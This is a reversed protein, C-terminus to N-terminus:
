ATNLNFHTDAYDTPDFVGEMRFAVKRMACPGCTGCHQAGDLYCSWTLDFPMRMSHGMRVIEHKVMKGLPDSFSVQHYPKVAYPALERFKNIFEMENDPYAGSEEMNSGLAITGFGHREAIALALSLMVTNRAPVWEHAFEAGSVGGRSQNVKGNPNTLVSDAAKQFFDTEIHMVPAHMRAALRNVSRIEAGQAKCGYQLHLLTVDDGKTHHYWAVVGSDLGGSCVVLTKRNRELPYLTSRDFNGRYDLAGYEYPGLTIPSPDELPNYMGDFYKRQSGFLYSGNHALLYLPKYNTAWYMMRPNERDLALIAFSGKLEELARPWGWNDLAVSIAYSDIQTRPVDQDLGSLLEKDNAITGNHTVAWRGSPSIFPQHDLEGRQPIWETTPEGRLNGVLATHGHHENHYEQQREWQGQEDLLILQQDDRGREKSRHYLTTFNPSHPQWYTSERLLAGVISCV